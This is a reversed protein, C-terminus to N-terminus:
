LYLYSIIVVILCIICIFLVIIFVYMLIFQVCLQLGVKVCGPIDTASPTQPLVTLLVSM